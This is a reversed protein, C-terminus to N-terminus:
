RKHEREVADIDVGFARLTERAHERIQPLASGARILELLREHSDVFQALKENRSPELGLTRMEDRQAELSASVADLRALIESDPVVVVAGVLNIAESVVM